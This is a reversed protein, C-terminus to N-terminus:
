LMPLHFNSSLARTTEAIFREFVPVNTENSLFCVIFPSDSMVIGVDHSIGEDEGTKHACKINDCHIYFPMKGNLQQNLLIHLMKEDAWKSILERNYIKKLLLGMDRATVHNQIGMKSLEPQFLKRRLVTGTLGLAQITHNIKEMGLFDILLNTATNDSVIIMLAILDILPLTVGEHMYSLVGCSPLMDKKAITFPTMLDVNEQVIQRFAEVMIPLKIVSAAILPLDAQNCQTHGSSLDECYFGIKGELDSLNM